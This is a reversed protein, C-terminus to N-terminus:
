RSPSGRDGMTPAHRVGDHHHSDDFLLLSEGVPELRGGYAELLFADILVAAPAGAAVVRGALLLVVDARSADARDHTSVVVTRGRACEGDVATDILQRSVADLGSVPEDLLLLEAEQALGQAVLARQRQGGSLERQQRRALHSLDMRELAAGVVVDLRAMAAHRIIRERSPRIRSDAANNSCIKARLASAVPSVKKASRSRLARPMSPTVLSKADDVSANLSAWFRSVSSTSTAPLLIRVASASVSLDAPASTVNGDETIVFGCSPIAGPM